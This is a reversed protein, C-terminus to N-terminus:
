PCASTLGVANSMNLRPRPLPAAEMFGDRPLALVDEVRQVAGFARLFGLIREGHVSGEAVAHGLEAYCSSTLLERCRDLAEVRRPPRAVQAVFDVYWARYEDQFAQYTPGPPTLNHLHNVEHVLTALGVRAELSGHPGAGLREDGCAIAQRSLVVTAPAVRFGAVITEGVRPLDAFGLGFCGRPPLLSDLTNDLITRRCVETGEAPAGDACASVYAVVRIARIRDQDDLGDWWSAELLRGLDRAVRRSAVHELHGLVARRLHPGLALWRAASPRALRLFRQESPDV